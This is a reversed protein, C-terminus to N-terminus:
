GVSYGASREILKFVSRDHGNVNCEFSRLVKANRKSSMVNCRKGTESGVRSLGIPGVRM